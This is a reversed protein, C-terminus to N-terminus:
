NKAQEDMNGSVSAVMAVVTKHGATGSFGTLLVDVYVYVSSDYCMVLLLVTIPTSGALLTESPEFMHGKTYTEPQSVHFWIM